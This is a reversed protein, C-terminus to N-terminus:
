NLTGRRIHADQWHIRGQETQFYEKFIERIAMGDQTARAATFRRTNRLNTDGQVVQRWEGPVGDRDCMAPTIYRSQEPLSEDTYSLFNHLVVCAKTIDEATDISCELARGLVRWRAALIGFANEIVRRARSHRFNYM